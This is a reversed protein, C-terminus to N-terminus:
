DVGPVDSEKGKSIKFTKKLILRCYKPERISTVGSADPQKNLSCVTIKHFIAATCRAGRLALSYLTCFKENWGAAGAPSEM